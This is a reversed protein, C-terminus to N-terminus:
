ARFEFYQVKLSKEKCSASSHSNLTALKKKELDDYWEVRSSCLLFMKQEM